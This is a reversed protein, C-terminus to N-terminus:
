LKEGTCEWIFNFAKSDDSKIINNDLLITNNSM